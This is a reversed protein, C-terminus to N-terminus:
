MSVVYVRFADADDEHYSQRLFHLYLTSYALNSLAAVVFMITTLVMVNQLQAFLDVFYYSNSIDTRGVIKPSVMVHINLNWVSLM